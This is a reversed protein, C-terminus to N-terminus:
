WSLRVLPPCSVSSHSKVRFRVFVAGTFSQNRCVQGRFQSIGLSYLRASVLPRTLVCRLRLSCLHRRLSAQCVLPASTLLWFSILPAAPSATRCQGTTMITVAMLDDMEQVVRWTMPSMSYSRCRFRFRSIFSSFRGVLWWRCRCM